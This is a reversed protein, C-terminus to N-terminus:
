NCLYAPKFNQFKQGLLDLLIPVILLFITDLTFQM